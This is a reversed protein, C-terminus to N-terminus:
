SSGGAGDGQLTHLSSSPSGVLVSCTVPTRQLLAVGPGGTWSHVSSVSALEHAGFLRGSAGEGRESSKDLLLLPLGQPLLVLADRSVREGGRM